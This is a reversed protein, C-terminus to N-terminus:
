RCASERRVGSNPPTNRAFGLRVKSFHGSLCPEAPEHEVVCVVLVCLGAERCM